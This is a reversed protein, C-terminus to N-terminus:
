RFQRWGRAGLRKLRPPAPPRLVKLRRQSPLENFPRHQLFENPYNGELAKLLIRRIGEHYKTMLDIYVTRDIIGMLLNRTVRVMADRIVEFERLSSIWAENPEKVETVGAGREV